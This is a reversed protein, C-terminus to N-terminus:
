GLKAKAREVARALVDIEAKTNYMGISARLTGEVGLRDMLPEACHHGVRM